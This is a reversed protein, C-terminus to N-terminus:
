EYDKALYNPLKLKNVAGFGDPGEFGYWDGTKRAYAIEGLIRRYLERGRALFAEDPELINVLYPPTKEVVLFIFRHEVGYFADVGSKYHVAQVDYGYKVAEKQFADTSADQASKVDVILAGKKNQRRVDPRCKLKLGTEEDTWYYSQEIEGLILKSATKNEKVSEVMGIIKEFDDPTLIQRTEANEAFAMSANKGETTRRDIGSPSIAFESFFDNPELIAKHFARGFLLAATDRKGNKEAYLFNKPCIVGGKVMTFLRSRSLPESAHYAEASESVKKVEM